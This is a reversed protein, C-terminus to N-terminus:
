LRKWLFVQEHGLPSDKLRGFEKYGLKRYFDPAQFSHSDLYVYRCGDARAEDEALGLLRRGLGNGRASETLWLDTIHLWGGWIHGLLGGRIMGASDRVFLKLPRWYDYGTRGVNYLSLGDRVFQADGEPAMPESSIRLDTGM